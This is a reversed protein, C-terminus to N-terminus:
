AQDASTIAQFAAAEFTITVTRDLRITEGDLIAPIRGHGAVNVTTVRTLAVSPDQRWNDFMAHMGLRFLEAATM